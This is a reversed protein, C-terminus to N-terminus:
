DKIKIVYGSEYLSVGEFPLKFSGEEICAQQVIVREYTDEVLDHEVVAELRNRINDCHEDNAVFDLLLTLTNVDSQTLEVQYTNEQM